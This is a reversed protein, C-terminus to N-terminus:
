AWCTAERVVRRLEAGDLERMTAGLVPGTLALLALPLLASRLSMRVDYRLRSSGLIFM